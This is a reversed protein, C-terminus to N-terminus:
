SPDKIKIVWKNPMTKCTFRLDSTKSLKLCNSVLILPVNIVYHSHQYIKNLFNTSLITTPITYIYTGCIYMCYTYVYLNHM